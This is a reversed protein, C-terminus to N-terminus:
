VISFDSSLKGNSKHAMAVINQVTRREKRAANSETDTHCMLVLWVTLSCRKENGQKGGNKKKQIEHVHARSVIHFLM